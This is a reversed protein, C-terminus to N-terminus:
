MVSISDNAEELHGNWCIQYEWTKAAVSNWNDHQGMNGFDNILICGMMQYNADM